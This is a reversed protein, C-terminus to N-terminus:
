RDEGANRASRLIEVYRQTMADLTFNETFGRFSRQGTQQRLSSSELLPTLRRMSESPSASDLEMGGLQELLEAVGGSPVAAIPLRARAAELLVVPCNELRAAHVYL